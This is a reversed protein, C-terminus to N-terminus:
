FVREKCLYIIDLWSMARMFNAAEHISINEILLKHSGLRKMRKGLRTSFVQERNDDVNGGSNSICDIFVTRLLISKLITQTEVGICM